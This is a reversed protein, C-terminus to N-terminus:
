PGGVPHTVMFEVWFLKRDDVGQAILRMDELIAESNGQAMLEKVKVLSQFIDGLVTIETEIYESRVELTRSKEASM